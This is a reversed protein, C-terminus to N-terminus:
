MEKLFQIKQRKKDEFQTVKSQIDEVTLKKQQSM